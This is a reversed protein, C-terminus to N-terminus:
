SVVNNCGRVQLGCVAHSGCSAHGPGTTRRRGQSDRLRLPVRVVAPRAQAGDAQLDDAHRRAPLLRERTRQDPGPHRPMRSPRLQGVPRSRDSARSHSRQPHGRHHAWVAERERYGRCVRARESHEMTQEHEPEYRLGRGRAAHELGCIHDPHSVEECPASGLDDPHVFLRCLGLLVGAQGSTGHVHRCRTDPPLCLRWQRVLSSSAAGPGYGETQSTDVLPFNMSSDGCVELGLYDIVPKVIKRWIDALVRLPQHHVNRKSIQVLLRTDTHSDRTNARSRLGAQEASGRLSLLDHSTLDLCLPYPEDELASSVILAFAHGRAAVLTVVPDNRAAERLTEYTSGLMFRALGPMARIERLIVQIRTYQRHRFDQTHDILRTPNVAPASAGITRLLDELEISLDKPAGEMQPDRQHLAQTWVVGHARDLLTVATTPQKALSAAVCADSGVQRTSKLTKLRSSMDLVFGAVLPLQDVIKAYADVLLAATHPSWASSHDWVLAAIDCVASIFHHTEDVKPQFSQQLYELAQSVSYRPSNCLLHLRSLQTLPYWVQSPPSHKTAYICTEIAEDLLAADGTQKYRTNLLAALNSCSYARDPHGLPQLALAERDLKIAEDLFALDGTQEYLVDLSVALNACSNARDPHGPPRLALAERKLDIEEDLLAVNGTQKYRKHLAAALNVCSYARDPHGPPRLSLAKHTLEIAEDLLAADGTQEYRMHLLAALNSCSITRDPYGSPQLALAERELEIAEDLLAVDGTQKYRTHLSAALNSCSIARDPHDSPRLSLAERDLEIAEDLLAVDGTHEYRTHLSVALNSCSTARNPHGPPRLSLAERTLNIADDLAAVDGTLEYHMHLSLALNSYSTARHPHGLPRLTLAERDLEVSKDLLAADGTLEYRRRLSHALTACGEARDPHGSPRLSLAERKLEIAEDLLAVDGTQEYRTHLSVGLNSCSVARNPHGPPRLALVEREAEIAEDIMSIDGCQIYGMYLHHGLLAACEARDPHDPSCSALAKRAHEIADISNSEGDESITTRAKSKTTWNEDDNDSMAHMVPENQEM